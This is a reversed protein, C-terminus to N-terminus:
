APTMSAFKAPLGFNVTAESAFRGTNTAGVLMTADV